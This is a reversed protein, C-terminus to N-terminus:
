ALYIKLVNQSNVSTDFEVVAVDSDPSAGDYPLPFVSTNKEYITSGVTKGNLTMKKVNEFGPLKHYRFKIHRNMLNEAGDYNGNSKDFNIILCNEKEDYTTSYGSTRYNGYKYDTTEHDDEYLYGSDGSDKSPFYDYALNSWDIDHTNNVDAVLPLLSGTKVFIPSSMLDCEFNYSNKGAYVKGDFVNLWNGEPLYVNKYFLSSSSKYQLNLYADYQGDYYELKLKHSENAKLDIVDYTVSDNAHFRDFCLNGDLYVRIGDDVRLALKVDQTPKIDAEFSASFNDSNVNAEPANRAWNFDVNDYEAEAVPNGSLTTNNYYKAQVKSTFWSSPFPCYIDDTIPAILIDDGLLYEDDRMALPDSQYEFDLARLLPLGTQYNEFALQYYIPLLRYRLNIYERSIDLAEEGYLWPQRYRDNFKSSHPRFIPSLAGYQVWRAYLENTPNGNHGGIDSNLYPISDIGGHIINSIEQSLSYSSANIDGTWQISYRHSASNYIKVYNGNSVNDANAMIVPRRYVGEKKAQSEFYQKTIDHYLYMGWTEPYMAGTPSKLSVSWNRDYWWYDLGMELYKTLNEHRYDVDSPDLLSKSGIVPEPHDNFMVDINMDGVDSLFGEMDPFLRTNVDYGIGDAGHSDRWDTDIVLNDLPLDYDDYLNIEERATTESYAFYKSDWSGLTSLRVMESNGTLEIYKKRLFKSDNNTLIVYLDKVQEQIVFDSMINQTGDYSYGTEPVKIRPRDMLAYAEPTEGPRPLSGSNSTFKYKYILTDGRYIQIGSLSEAELPILIKTEGFTIICHTDNSEKKFVVGKYKDRNPIFFTNDDFFSDKYKEEFRITNEDLLQVRVNGVIINGISRQDIISSISNSSSSDSSGLSSSSGQMISSVNSQNNCALLLFSLIMMGSYFHKKM